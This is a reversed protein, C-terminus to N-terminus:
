REGAARENKACNLGHKNGFANVAPSRYAGRLHLRGFTAQLPELLETCLRRGAEIAAQPNEPINPIGHIVSIESLLFDRLFFSKSLRTRGLQELGAVSKPPKPVTREKQERVAGASTVLPRARQRYVRKAAGHERLM